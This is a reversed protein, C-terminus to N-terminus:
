SNKKLWDDRLQKFQNTTMEHNSLKINLEKIYKNFEFAKINESEFRESAAKFQEVSEIDHRIRVHTLIDKFKKSCVPCIIKEM